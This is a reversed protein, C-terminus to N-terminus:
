RRHQGTKRTPLASWPDDPWPHKPYRGKLEKKVQHYAGDWFGKLDYTVQIPRGAPSLLHLLVPVRGAAVAPTDALGFLEQLKVALVPVPGTTYDLRIRSGSPVELHTPALEDLARQQRYELRGRLMAAIDLAALQRATHIGEVHPALWEELTDLLQEDSLDPWGGEPMASRLLGGRGQLQRVAANMTLLQLRSQRVARIVARVVEDGVPRCPSSSLVVAGIREERVATIRGNREDWAVEECRVIMRACEQRIIEEDLAAALHIVGEGGEGGVVVIALLFRATRVSCTPGLRAGRGSALLYRGGGGERLCALRDGWGSLLSRRISDRDPLDAPTDGPAGVLRLLHRAVRDVAAIAGADVLDAGFPINGQRWGRLLELRDTIDSDGRHLPLSRGQLRIIDRETLLAALDCGTAGCGLEEARILMRALRPHLPLRNMATGLRTIRGAGDMAGLQGLLHRAAETSAVPPPDLWVLRAPDDIGWAALELLLSSLDTERIEPPTHPTMAHYTHRSFLRYCVGESLRGARGTRQEASSRSERVTVLRNLGSSPDYRMRRSLGSDIVVRIGEITLSTEAISTALVVKRRDGPLIARQQQEFSLDGYLQHLAIGQGPVGAEALRAACARIEGSGPLFALVDGGTERLARRIADAMRSSLPGHPQDELYVEDVPFSRGTSSVVPADLLRVLPAIDLTASMILIKLDPRVQRQIDLCFALGLDSQLSREHFEDFIVMGVGELMPDHQLRRTLIGETVVEIRTAASVRSAFRISYGVTQGVEEGRTSAMYRAVSVAALRRPELMVIRGADPPSQQLLALPVRTTKGAGPPAHLITSPHSHITRILEPLIDDVPLLLM